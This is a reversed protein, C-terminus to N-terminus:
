GSHWETYLDAYKYLNGYIHIFVRSKHNTILLDRTRNKTDAGSM